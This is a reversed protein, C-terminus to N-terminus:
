PPKWQRVSAWAKMARAPRGTVSSLPIAALQAVDQDAIWAYPREREDSASGVSAGGGSGQGVAAAPVDELLFPQIRPSYPVEGFPLQEGLM